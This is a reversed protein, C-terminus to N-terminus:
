KVFNNRLSPLKTRVITSGVCHFGRPLTRAASSESPPSHTGFSLTWLGSSNAGLRPVSDLVERSFELAATSQQSGKVEWTGEKHGSVDVAAGTWRDWWQM